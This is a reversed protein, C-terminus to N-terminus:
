KAKVLFGRDMYVKDDTFKLSIYIDWKQKLSEPDDPKCFEGMRLILGWRGGWWFMDPTLSTSRPLKYLAYKGKVINAAPLVRGPGYRKISPSYTGMSFKKGDWPEALAYKQNAGPDEVRYKKQANRSPLLLRIDDVPYKSLLEEPIPKLPLRRGIGALFKKVSKTMSSVPKHQRDIYEATRILREQCKKVMPLYKMQTWQHDAICCDLGMRLLDIRRAHAPDIQRAAEDLLRNWRLFNEETLYNYNQTSYFWKGGNAAFNKRYQELEFAFQLVSDAAKGYYHVAFNRMLEKEDWASNQFLKYMVYTQMESLNTGSSAGGADHEFYTGEVKLRAMTRIDAALREFNALPAPVPLKSGYTNPYYWVWVKPTIKLWAELDDRDRLNEKDLTGSFLGNIPCFIVTLNKPPNKLGAPPRQTLSTQYALTAFEVEPYAACLEFLYDFFSGGPTRYKKQLSQCDKCYCMNYAIDNLDLTHYYRSKGKAELTKYYLFLNRTLEKRLERNSFCLQRNNVRMGQEDLSFWEPHVAFYDKIRICSAAQNNHKGKFGPLIRSLVHCTPGKLDVAQVIGKQPFGIDLLINQRNRYAFLRVRNKDTHFWNMLSRLPFAYRSRVIGEPITITKKVPIFDGNGFASLWRCGLQNELLEYVAYLNGHRGKGYLFLHGDKTQIVAEQDHLQDILCDKGLIKLAHPSLGVFITKGAPTERMTEFFAGSMAKLHSQLEEVAFRDVESATKGCHIGYDTKGERCLTLNGAFGYLCVAGLFSAALVKQFIM